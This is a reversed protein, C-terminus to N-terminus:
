VIHTSDPLKWLNPKQAKISNTKKKKMSLDQNILMNFKADRVKRFPTKM